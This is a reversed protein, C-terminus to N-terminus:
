EDIFSRDVDIGLISQVGHKDLYDILDESKSNEETKQLANKLMPDNETCIESLAIIENGPLNMQAALEKIISELVIIRSCLTKSPEKLLALSRKIQVRARKEASRAKKEHTEAGRKASRVDKELEEIETQLETMKKYAASVRDRDRRGCEQLESIIRDKEHLEKLLADRQNM